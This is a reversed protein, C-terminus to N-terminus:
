DDDDDDDDDLGMEMPNDFFSTYKNNSKLNIGRISSGEGVCFVKDGVGVQMESDPNVVVYPLSAQNAQTPHRVVGIVLAEHEWLLKIFLGGYTMGAFEQKVEVQRVV